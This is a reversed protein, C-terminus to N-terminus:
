RLQCDPCWVTSRGAVRDRRLRTGCRPCDPQPRDRRGTLWSDRPPVRGARTASSIVKRMETRMRRREGGTLDRARRAPHVRARWLIEDSLLNGLGALAEQDMLVSKVRAARGRLVEDFGAQDIRAADPGQRALLRDVTADDGLRIGQLKRQDRFRIQEAGLDLVVRDHPHPPDDPRCRVLAGTMGFHFLLVPEGDTRAVLWKGHRQPRRLRRGSLRRRLRPASVGRLVGADRVDVDRVTRGRVGELVRRFGEVDPLEPM